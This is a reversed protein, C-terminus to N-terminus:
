REAYCVEFLRKEYGLALAAELAGRGIAKAKESITFCYEQNLRPDVDGIKMRAPVDMGERILGRLVGRFPSPVCADGVMAVCEGEEVIDGINRLHRVKGAVSSYLVRELGRGEVIGPIGTNEIARGSEIVQGLYHGRKTEIVRHCDLGAEFGPGLALVIPADQIRTGAVNEKALIGDVLVDPKFTKLILGAPDVIVGIKGYDISDQYTDRTVLIGKIGEVEVQGEYVAEAFSVTRRIVTPAEIETMLVQFGAKAFAYGVGSALDGAGRVLVKVM